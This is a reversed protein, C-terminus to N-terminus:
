SLCRLSFGRGVGPTGEEDQKNQMFRVVLGGLLFSIDRSYKFSYWCVGCKNGFFDSEIFQLKKMLIKSFLVIIKAYCGYACYNGMLVFQPIPGMCTVIM